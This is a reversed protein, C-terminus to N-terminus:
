ALDSPDVRSLGTIGDFDTDTTVIGSFGALLATAAHVADRGRAEEREVLRRSERLTEHDFDHWVVLRDLVDFDTIAEATSTRRLRHFLFEQGAEVSQHLRLDGTAALEVVRVCAARDPHEDGFALLLVSSDVFVARM